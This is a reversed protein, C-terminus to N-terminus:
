DILLLIKQFPVAILRGTKQAFRKPTRRRWGGSESTFTWVQSRLFRRSAGGCEL